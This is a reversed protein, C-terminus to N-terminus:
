YYMAAVIQVTTTLLCPSSNPNTLDRSGGAEVDVAEEWPDRLGAHFSHNDRDGAIQETIFSSFPKEAWEERDQFL